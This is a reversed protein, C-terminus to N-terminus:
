YIKENITDKFTHLIRNPYKDVQLVSKIFIAVYDEWIDKEKKSIYRELLACGYGNKIGWKVLAEASDPFFRWCDTPYAHYVGNSPANLYFLGDHKLVRLIELFTEWFFETHEFCSSSVVYDFYNDELPYKYPNQAVVDVNNGNTIDLGIFEINSTALNRIIFGGMSQSGIELIKVNNTKDVYIDFFRKVNKEATDHM